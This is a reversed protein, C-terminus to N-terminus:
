LWFLENAPNPNHNPAMSSNHLAKEGSILCEGNYHQYHEIFYVRTVTKRPFRVGWQM